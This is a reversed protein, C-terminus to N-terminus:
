FAISNDSRNCWEGDWRLYVPGQRRYTLADLQSPSLVLLKGAAVKADLDALYDQFFGTGSDLSTPNTGDFPLINHTYGLIGDGNLAAYEVGKQWTSGAYTNRYTPTDTGTFFESYQRNFRGRFSAWGCPRSGTVNTPSTEWDSTTGVNPNVGFEADSTNGRSGQVGLRKLLGAMDLGAFFGKNQLWQHFAMGDAGLGQLVGFLAGRLGAIAEYAEAETVAASMGAPQDGVLAHGHMFVDHGLAAIDAFTQLTPYTTVGFTGGDVRNASWGAKWGRQNFPALMADIASKYTGDSINVVFGVPWDPSYIRDIELTVAATTILTLGVETAQYYKNTSGWEAATGQPYKKDSCEIITRWQNNWATAQYNLDTMGQKSVTGELVKFMHYNTMNGSEGINLYLRTVKSWDSCRVRMHVRAALKAKATPFQASVPLPIRVVTSALAGTTAFRIMGAGREGGPQYSTTLVGQVIPAMGSHREPSLVPLHTPLPNGGKSVAASSKFYKMGM